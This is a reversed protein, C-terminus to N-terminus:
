KSKQPLGRRFRREPSSPLLAKSGKPLANRWSGTAQLPSIAASRIIFATSIEAPGFDASASGAFRLEFGEPRRSHTEDTRRGQRSAARSNPFLVILVKRGPRDTERLAALLDAISHQAVLLDHSHDYEMARMIQLLRWAGYTTSEWLARFPGPPRETFYPLSDLETLGRVANFSGLAVVIADEDAYDRYRIRASMNDVGYANVGANGCTFNRHITKELRECVVSSFLDKDDIYSGGWTASAGIFLIKGDAPATWDKLGRLGKSDLTIAAGHPGVQKQNPKPAFRYGSEANFLIPNGLGIFRLYAEALVVPAALMALIIIWFFFRAPRSM